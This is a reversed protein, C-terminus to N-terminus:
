GPRKINIGSPDSSEGRRESDKEEDRITNQMSLQGFRFLGRKKTDGVGSLKNQKGDGGDAQLWISVPDRRSGALDNFNYKM